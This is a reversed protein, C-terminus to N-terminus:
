LYMLFARSRFKISIVYKKRCSFLARSRGSLAIILHWDNISSFFCSPPCLLPISFFSTVMIVSFSLLSCLFVNKSNTTEVNKKNSFDLTKLKAETKGTLGMHYLYFWDECTGCPLWLDNGKKRSNLIGLTAICKMWGGKQRWRKWRM